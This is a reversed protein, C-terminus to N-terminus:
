DASPPMRRARSPRQGALVPRHLENEMATLQDVDSTLQPGDSNAAPRDFGRRTVRPEPDLPGWRADVDGVAAIM